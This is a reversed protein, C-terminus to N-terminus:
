DESDDGPRKAKLKELVTRKATAENSAKLAEAIRKAVDPNSRYTWRKNHKPMTKAPGKDGALHMRTIEKAKALIRANKSQRTM